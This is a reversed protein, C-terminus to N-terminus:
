GRTRACSKKQARGHVFAPLNQIYTHTHQFTTIKISKRARCDYNPRNRGISVIQKTWTWWCQAPIELHIVLRQFQEYMHTHSLPSPLTRRHHRRCRDCNLFVSISGASVNFFLAGVCVIHLHSFLARERNNMRCKYCKTKWWMSRAGLEDNAKNKATDTNTHTHATYMTIITTTRLRSLAAFGNNKEKWSAGILRKGLKGVYAPM